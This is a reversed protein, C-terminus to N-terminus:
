DRERTQRSGSEDPEESASRHCEVCNDFDRIGEELHKARIADPRHAHCGYCTYRSFDGDVHCTTCAANHERDLVFLRDHAFTAPKWSQQSHCKGCNLTLNRHLEDDAAAHCSSCRDQSSTRLLEHSFAKQARGNLRLGQHETHCAICDDEILDQHFSTKVAPKALAVGKTSRLGIDVVAHCTVCRASTAGRLPVHCAFCDTTLEAHAATLPGPSVMLHPYAFTLVLVLSLVITLGLLTWRRKM